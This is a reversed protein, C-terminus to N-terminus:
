ISALSLPTRSAPSVRQVVVASLSPSKLKVMGVGRASPACLIRTEWVSAAPLSDGAEPASVTMTSREAGLVGATDPSIATESFTVTAPTMTPVIAEVSAEGTVYSSTPSPPPRKRMSGSVPTTEVVPAPVKSKSVSGETSMVTRATSAMSLTLLSTVSVTVIRSTCFAGM